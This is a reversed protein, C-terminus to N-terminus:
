FNFQWSGSIRAYAQSYSVNLLGSAFQILSAHSCSGHLLLWSAQEGVESVRISVFEAQPLVRLALSHNTGFFPSSGGCGQPYM